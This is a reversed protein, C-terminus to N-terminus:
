TALPRPEPRPADIATRLRPLADPHQERLFRLLGERLECRLDFNRGSDGASVLVRV